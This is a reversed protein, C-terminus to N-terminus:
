PNAEWGSTDVDQLISGGMKITEAKGQAVEEDTVTGKRLMLDMVLGLYNKRSQHLTGDANFYAGNPKPLISALFVSQAYTLIRPSTGFYHKAAPGIGYVNPGFEVSNLYLEMIREKSLKQELMTTLFAEKIKRSITKERGLWLNKALQMSITSAGRKFKGEKVNDRISNEIASIDFGHNSRFSPDEM